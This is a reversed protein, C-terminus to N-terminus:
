CVEDLLRTLADVDVDIDRVITSQRTQRRRGGRASLYRYELGPVGSALRWFDPLLSCTPFLEIVRAGPSAFVLNVLAAGHPAVIVKAQAFTRIQDVVSMSGPDVHEFSREGLAELVAPENRVSRNNAAAGRTIYIRRTPAERAPVGATSLLRERLFGVVWPPNMQTEAPWGPVVLCQARVHPHQEADVIRDAGLDFLGLLERQFRTRAPVYWRDPPAVTPAQDLVGIRALADMLFHYYNGDGRVALVGLRGDIELPPQPFPQLFQPHQRGSSTDFYHSVENVMANDATIVARHRGLVRARPLEAVAVRRFSEATRTDSLPLDHPLGLMPPRTIREAPRAVTCTGGTRAAAEDLTDVSREPLWGGRRRSLARSVPSIGGITRVYAPKLYPFLPRLRPPLRVV